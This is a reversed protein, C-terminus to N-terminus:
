KKMKYQKELVFASTCIIVFAFGICQYRSIHAHFFLASALIVTIDKGTGVMAYETATGVTVFAITSIQLGVALIGNLLLLWKVRFLEAYTVNGWEIYITPLLLSIFALPSLISLISFPDLGRLVTMHKMYIARLGILLLALFQYMYGAVNGAVEGHVVQAAGLSVVVVCLVSRIDTEELGGMVALVHVVIPSMCLIGQITHIPLLSYAELSLTITAMQLYAVPLAYDAIEKFSLGGLPGHKAIAPMLTNRLPSLAIGRTAITAFCMQYTAIHLPHSFNGGDRIFMWKNYLTLGASFSAFVLAASLFKAFRWNPGSSGSSDIEATTATVPNSNEERDAEEDQKGIYQSLFHLTLRLLVGVVFLVGVVKVVGNLQANQFIFTAEAGQLDEHGVNSSIDNKGLNKAQQPATQNGNGDTSSLVQARINASGGRSALSGLIPRPPELGSKFTSVEPDRAHALAAVVLYYTSTVM